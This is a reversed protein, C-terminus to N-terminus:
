SAVSSIFKTLDFYDNSSELFELFDPSLNILFKVTLITTHPTILQRKLDKTPLELQEIPNNIMYGCIRHEREMLWIFFINYREKHEIAKNLENLTLFFSKKWSSTKVEYKNRLGNETTTELDYGLRDSKAIEVTKFHKRLYETAILEGFRGLKMKRGIWSPTEQDEDHPIDQFNSNTALERNNFILPLSPETIKILSNGNITLSLHYTPLLEPLSGLIRIDM